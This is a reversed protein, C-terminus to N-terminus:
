APTSVRDYGHWSLFIEFLGPWNLRSPALANPPWNFNGSAIFDGVISKTEDVALSQLSEFTNKGHLRYYYLDEEVFLPETYFIARLLFDWDHCYRYSRFDGVLNFLAKTFVFNGTSIALNSALCAFGVSPFRKIKKQSSFFRIGLPHSHTINQDDDDIYQVSTCVLEGGNKQMTDVACRIRDPAYMDDSNLISIISGKSKSIAYNIAFHAGQNKELPYFSTGEPFRSNWSASKIIREIEQVSGDPSRDDVIVVEINKYTQAAVSNLCRELYVQHAYCPIVISVLPTESISDMYCLGLQLRFLECAQTIDFKVLLYFKKHFKDSLIM